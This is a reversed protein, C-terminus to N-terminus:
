ICRHRERILRIGEAKQREMKLLQDNIKRVEEHSLFTDSLSKQSIQLNSTPKSENGVGIIRLLRKFPTLLKGYLTRKQIWIEKLDTKKM